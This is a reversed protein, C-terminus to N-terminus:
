DESYKFNLALVNNHEIELHYNYFDLVKILSKINYDTNLKENEMKQITKLNIKTKEAVQKQTLGKLKRLNKLKKAIMKNDGIKIHNNFSKFKLLKLLM